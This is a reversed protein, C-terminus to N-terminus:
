AAVGKDLSLMFSTKPVCDEVDAEILSESRGTYRPM